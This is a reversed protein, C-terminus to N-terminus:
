RREGGFLRSISDRWPIPYYSKLFSRSISQARYILILALLHKIHFIAWFTAWDMEDFTIFLKKSFLLSFVEALIKLCVQGFYDSPLFDSL